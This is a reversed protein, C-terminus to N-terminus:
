YDNKASAVVVAWSNKETTFLPDLKYEVCKRNVAEVDSIYFGSLVLIGSSRIFHTYVKIDNLLDNLSLNALVIDFYDKKSIDRAGGLLVEVNEVGNLKINDVANDRAREDSDVALVRRAGKRSSLISLIGTGCGADLVDKGTFDMRLMSEIMLRTTEHDGTGFTMNPDIIVEYTYPSADVEHYSAHVICEDGFIVPKFSNKEWEENWNKSVICRRTLSFRLGKLPFSTLAALVARKDDNKASIFGCLNDGSPIFSEFGIEGLVGALVDHVLETKIAKESSHNITYQFYNM